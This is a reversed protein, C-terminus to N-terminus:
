GQNNVAHKIRDLKDATGVGILVAGIGKIITPKDLVPQSALWGAVTAVTGWVTKSTAWRLLKAPFPIKM